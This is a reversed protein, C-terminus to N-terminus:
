IRKSELMRKTKERLYLFSGEDLEYGCTIVTGRFRRIAERASNSCYRSHDEPLLLADVSQLYDGLASDFTQPEAITVEEAYQRCTQALLQGYRLSSCLIGVKQGRQLRLLELMCSSELRLAVRIVKKRDGLLQELEDAHTATTVILDTDEALNYPYERVTSVLYSYLEVRDIRRLQESMRTLNETNCEVVAIRIRSEEQARQRLKLDLFINVETPSFGMGELRDLMEDIAAMAQDKRSGSDAPRYCIFTGRGQVKEVIGERELEDYARKITGVAISLDCSVEQVTPLKQGATLRGQRVAARIQDVLQRYIPIDLESNVSFVTEM